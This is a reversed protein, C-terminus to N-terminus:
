IMFKFSMLLSHPYPIKLDIHRIEYENRIIYGLSLLFYRSGRFQPLNVYKKITRREDCYYVNLIRHDVLEKNIGVVHWIFFM